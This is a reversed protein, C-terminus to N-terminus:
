FYKKSELNLKNKQQIQILLHNDRCYYEMRGNEKGAKRSDGPMHITKLDTIQSVRQLHKHDQMKM